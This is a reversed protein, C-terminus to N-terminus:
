QAGAANKANVSTAVNGTWASMISSIAEASRLDNINFQDLWIYYDTETLKFLDPVSDTDAQKSMVFALMGIADIARENAEGNADDTRISNITTLIDFHFINKFLVATLATSKLNIDTNAIRITTNM